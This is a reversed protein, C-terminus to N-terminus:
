PKIKANDAAANLESVLTAYATRRSLFYGGLFQDGEERGKEVAALHERTRQLTARRTQVGSQLTSLHQELEDASGGAPFLLFGAAIVNAAVLAGLMARAITKPAATGRLSPRGPMDSSRAM